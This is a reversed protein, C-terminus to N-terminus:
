AVPALADDIARAVEGIGSMGDMQWDLLIVDPNVERLMAWAGDVPEPTREGHNPLQVWYFPLDDIKSKVTDKEDKDFASGNFAATEEALVKTDKVFCDWEVPHLQKLYELLTVRSLQDEERIIERLSLLIKESYHPVLVTFTPM